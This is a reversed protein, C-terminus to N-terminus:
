AQDKAQQDASPSQGGQRPTAAATQLNKEIRMLTRELREIEAAGIGTLANQLFRDRREALQKYVAHGQRTLGVRNFRNDAPDMRREVLGEEQLPKVARTISWGDSGTLEALEKQTSEGLTHLKDLVRWRLLNTGTYYEFAAVCAAHARAIHIHVNSTQLPADASSTM